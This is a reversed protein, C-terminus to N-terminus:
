SAVGRAEAQHIWRLADRILMDLQDRATAAETHGTLRDTWEADHLAEAWWLVDNWWIQCELLSRGPLLAPLVNDAEYDKLDIANDVLVRIAKPALSPEIIAKAIAVGDDNSHLHDWMACLSVVADVAATRNQTTTM